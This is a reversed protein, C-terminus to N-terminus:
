KNEGKSKINNLIDEAVEIITKLMEQQEETTRGDIVYTIFNTFRNKHKEIKTKNM